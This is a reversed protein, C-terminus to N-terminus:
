SWMRPLAPQAENSMLSIPRHHYAHMTHIHMTHIHMTHIYLWGREVHSPSQSSIPRHHDDAPPEGECQVHVRVICMCECACARAHVHGRMCPCQVGSHMHVQSCTGAAARCRGRSMQALLHVLLHVPPREQQLQYRSGPGQGRRVDSCTSACTSACSSLLPRRRQLHRSATGDGGGLAPALPCAAPAVRLM